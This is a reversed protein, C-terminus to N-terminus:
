GGVAAGLELANWGGQDPGDDWNVELVARPRMSAARAMVDGAGAGGDAERGGGAAEPGEVAGHVEEPTVGAAGGPQGSWVGGAVVAYM